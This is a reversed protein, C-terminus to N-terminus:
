FVEVIEIWENIPYTNNDETIVLLENNFSLDIYDYLNLYEQGKFRKQFFPVREVPMIAIKRELGDFYGLEWPMWISKYSNKSFAFLLCKSNRMRIRMTEASQRNVKDRNLHPDIWDVYVSLGMNNLYAKIGAVEMKDISSHSLFIDFQTELPTIESESLYANINKDQEWMKDSAYKILEISNLNNGYLGKIKGIIFEFENERIVGIYKKIMEKKISTTKNLYIYAQEFIDSDELLYLYEEKQSKYNIIETSIPSVICRDGIDEIILILRTKKNYTVSLYIEGSNLKKNLKM